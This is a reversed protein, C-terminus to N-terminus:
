FLVGPEPPLMDEGRMLTAANVALLPHRSAAVAWPLKSGGSAPRLPEDDMSPLPVGTRPLPKADVLTDAAREAAAVELALPKADVATDDAAASRGAGREHKKGKSKAGAAAKASSNAKAPATAAAKPPAKAPEAAAAKAPESSAKAPEAAAAKAPEASPAASARPTESAAAPAVAASQAAPGRAESPTPAESATPAPDASWSGGDEEPASAKAPAALGAGDTGMLEWVSFIKSAELELTEFDAAAASWEEPSSDSKTPEAHPTSM